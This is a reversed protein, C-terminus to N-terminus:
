RRRAPKRHVSKLTQALSKAKAAQQEPYALAAKIDAQMAARELESTESVPERLMQQPEDVHVGAGHSVMLAIVGLFIPLAFM